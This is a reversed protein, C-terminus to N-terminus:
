QYITQIWYYKNDSLMICQFFVKFWGTGSNGLQFTQVGPTSSVIFGGTSASVKLQCAANAVPQLPDRYFRIEQGLLYQSADPITIIPNTAVQLSLVNTQYFLGGGGIISMTNSTLSGSTISYLISYDKTIPNPTSNPKFTIYNDMTCGGKITLGLLSSTGSTQNINSTLTLGGQVTAAGKITIADSASGGLQVAGGSQTLAGTVTLTGTEAEGGNCFLKGTVTVDSDFTSAGTFETVSQVVMSGTVLVTDSLSSGLTVSNCGLNLVSKHAFTDRPIYTLNDSQLPNTNTNSSGFILPYPTASTSSVAATTIKTALGVAQSGSVINNVTTEFTGVASLASTIDSGGVIINTGSLTTASVTGSANLDGNVGHAGSTSITSSM